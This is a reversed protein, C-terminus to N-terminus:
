GRGVWVLVELIIMSAKLSSIIQIGIRLQSEREEFVLSSVALQRSISGAKTFKSGGLELPVARYGSM